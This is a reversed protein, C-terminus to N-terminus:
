AHTNTRKRRSHPARHRQRRRLLLLPPPLLPPMGAWQWCAAARLARFAAQRLRGVRREKQQGVGGAESLSPLAALLLRSHKARARGSQGRVCMRPRARPPPPAAPPPLLLPRENTTPKPRLGGCCGACQPALPAVRAARKLPAGGVGVREHAREDGPRVGVARKGVVAGVQRLAADGDVVVRREGAGQRREDLRAPQALVARLTTAAATTTSPHSRRHCSSSSPAPPFYHQLVRIVICALCNFSNKEELTETM